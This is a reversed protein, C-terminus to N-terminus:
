SYVHSRPTTTCSAPITSRPSDGTPLLRTSNMTKYCLTCLLVDSVLCSTLHVDGVPCFISAGPIFCLQFQWDTDLTLTICSIRLHRLAIRYNTWSYAHDRLSIRPNPIPPAFSRFLLSYSPASIQFCFCRVPYRLVFPWSSTLCALVLSIWFIPIWTSFLYSLLSAATCGAFTCYGSRSTSPDYNTDSTTKRLIM